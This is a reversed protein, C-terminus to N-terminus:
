AAQARAFQSAIPGGPMSHHLLREQSYEARDLLAAPRGQQLVLIRDSLAMLEVWDSSVLVIGIGQKALTDLLAYIAAKAGVDVGRTPEDLLLMRPSTALWKALVLKQQNGGSLSAASATDSAAKISLDSIADNALVREAGPRMLGFRSLRDLSALATNFRLSQDRVLGSTKRDETVFAVGAAIADAASRPRYVDDGLRMEGSGGPGAVGAILELLESRGSGVLGGIGLVEGPAL